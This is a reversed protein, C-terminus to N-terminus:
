ATADSLLQLAFSLSFNIPVALFMFLTKAQKATEATIAHLRPRAAQPLEADLLAAALLEAALLAADLALAEVLALVEALLEAALELAADDLEAAAGPSAAPKSSVGIKSSM